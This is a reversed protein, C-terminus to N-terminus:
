VKEIFRVEKLVDDAIRPNLMDVTVLDVNANMLMCLETSLSTVTDFYGKYNNGFAKDDFEVLLDVDSDGTQEGRVYSGFVGIKRVHHKKLLESSSKLVDLIMNATM